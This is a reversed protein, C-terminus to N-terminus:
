IVFIITVFLFKAHLLHVSKNKFLEIQPNM